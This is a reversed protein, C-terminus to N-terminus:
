VKVLKLGVQGLIKNTTSLVDIQPKRIKLKISPKVNFNPLYGEKKMKDILIKIMVGLILLYLGIYLNNFGTKPSNRVTSVGSAVKGGSTSAISLVTGKNNDNDNDDHDEDNDDEDDNDNNDNDNDEDNKANIEVECKSSQVKLNDEVVLTAKFNGDKTYEHEEKIGEGTHGDGFDWLYRSITGDNDFSGTADFKVKLPIDGEKPEASVIKCVPKQNETTPAKVKINAKCENTSKNGDNDTVVLSVLEDKATTFTQSVKAGEKKVNNSFTWEYKVIQGDEDKSKSGDFNVTLPAFGEKPSYDFVCVPPKKDEKCENYFVMYDKLNNDKCEWGDDGVRCQKDFVDIQITQDCKIKQTHSKDYSRNYTKYDDLLNVEDKVWESETDHNNCDNKKGDCVFKVVFNKGDGDCKGDKPDCFDGKHENAQTGSGFLNTYFGGEFRIPSSSYVQGVFALAIVALFGIVVSNKLLKLSFNM